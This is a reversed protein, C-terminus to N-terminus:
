PIAEVRVERGDGEEAHDGNPARLPNSNSRHGRAINLLLLLPNVQELKLLEEGISVFITLRFVIIVTAVLADNVSRRM